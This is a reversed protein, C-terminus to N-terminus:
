AAIGKKVRSVMPNRTVKKALSMAEDSNAAMVTKLYVPQMDNDLKGDYVHYEFPGYSLKREQIPVNVPAKAKAMAAARNFALQKLENGLSM